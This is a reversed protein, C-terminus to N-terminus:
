EPGAFETFSLKIFDEIGLLAGAAFAAKSPATAVFSLGFSAVAVLAIRKISTKTSMIKREFTMRAYKARVAQIFSVPEYTM